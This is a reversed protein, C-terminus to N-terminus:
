CCKHNFLYQHMTKSLVFRLCEGLKPKKAASQGFNEFIFELMLKMHKQEIFHSIGCCSREHSSIDNIHDHNDNIGFPSLIHHPDPSLSKHNVSETKNMFGSHNMKKMKKLYEEIEDIHEHKAMLDIERQDTPIFRWDIKIDKHEIEEIFRIFLRHWGKQSIMVLFYYWKLSQFHDKEGLLNQQKIREEANIMDYLQTLSSKKRHHHSQICEIISEPRIWHDWLEKFITDDHREASIHLIELQMLWKQFLKDEIEIEKAETNWDNQSRKIDVEKTALKYFDIESESETRQHGLSPHIILMEDDIIEPSKSAGKSLSKLMSLQNFIPNHTPDEDSNCDLDMMMFNNLMQITDNNDDNSLDLSSAKSGSAKKIRQQEEKKWMRYFTLRSAIQDRIRENKCQELYFDITNGHIYDKKNLDCKNTSLLMKVIDLLGNKVAYMLPTRGNNRAKDIHITDFANNILLQVVRPRNYRVALCLATQGKKDVHNPHGIHKHKLLLQVINAYGRMAAHMLPTTHNEDSCNIETEEYNLLLEVITMKGDMVACILPTYGEKDKENVFTKLKDLGDIELLIRLCKDSGTKVAFHFPNRGVLGINIMDMDQRGVLDRDCRTNELFWHCVMDYDM